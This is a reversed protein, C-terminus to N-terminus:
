SCAVPKKAGIPLCKTASAPGNHKRITVLKVAGVMGPKTVQVTIVTGRRFKPGIFSKLKVTGKANTKTLRKVPCRAGKKKPACSVQLTAGSPINKVVFTTLRTAKDSAAYRFSVSVLVRGPVTAPTPAVVTYSRTVSATNGAVDAADVKFTKNGVSGTDLAAGSPASGVCSAIGTGFRDDACAYSAVVSQGQVYTAEDAPTTVSISPAANDLAALRTGKVCIGYANSAAPLPGRDVAGSAINFRYVNGPNNTQAWFSKGDPDLAIGFWSEENPVDYQQVVQGSGNLRKIVSGQAVILGGSGDGPPLLKLDAVSRPAGGLNAFDPFNADAAVDFRHIIPPATLSRDTYFITRQDASLDILSAPSAPNFSKLLTGGGTFHLLSPAGIHGVYFSGDRAFSISEPQASLGTIQPIPNHPAPGLFRDIAPVTYATTLLVGARDFACDVAYHNVGTSAQNITEHLTGGNDYVNYQGSSLGVFVDGSQWDYASAGVPVALTAALALIAAFATRRCRRGENSRAHM